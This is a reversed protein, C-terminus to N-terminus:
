EYSELGGTINGTQINSWSGGLSAFLSVLALQRETEANVLGMRASFESRQAELYRLHDDMGANYRLESLRLSEAYTDLLLRRAAEEQQLTASATLADQVEAFAAQISYEYSQVAMLKRVEALDLNAQNRGGSFLTLSIVPMFSWAGQGSDFLDSLEASANGARGSLSIGPFFAARAAGIRANRSMLQREAARIDPRRVLLDSPLGPSVAQTLLYGRVPKDPLRRKIDPVGVVLVLAHTAQQVDREIRQLDVHVQQVLGLAEQYDLDTAAGAQLRQETLQLSDQRAALTQRALERQQLASNRVIYLRTVETILSLEAARAREEEALYEQMAAESLSRVRGFLDLEYNAVGLSMEYQSQVAPTGQPRLDSPLRQRTGSARADIGPMSESHQIGYMARAAEVNLLAQRLNHNHELALTITAALDDDRIFDRWYSIDAEQASETQGSNGVADIDDAMLDGEAKDWSDPITAEPRQYEPALSCASVALALAALRTLSAIQSFTNNRM